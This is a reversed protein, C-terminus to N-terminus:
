VRTLRNRSYLAFAAGPEAIEFTEEFADAGSFRYTERARFGPPINEIAETELVFVDNEFDATTAVYQNVFGELHFQRFIIRSRSRDFSWFGRHFHTEGQPNAAQPAYTSINREELFKGGLVPDYNRTVRSDGPEGSGTGRWSGVFRNLPALAAALYSVQDSPVVAAVRAEATACSAAGAALTLGFFRRTTDM